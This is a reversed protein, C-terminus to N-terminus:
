QPECAKPVCGHGLKIHTFRVADAEYAIGGECPNEELFLPTDLDVFSFGGAGAAFGASASMALPSEILGGIMLKLGHERALWAMEMSEAIGAKMFKINIVQAARAAAIRKVDPATVASEDAAVPVRGDRQVRAMGDLDGAAVPQEFLIPKIDATRLESLLDLAQDVGLSANADLLLAADPAADRVARVREADDSRGGIKIKVRRFGSRAAAAAERRATAVGGMPITLDTRLVRGASGFYRWFSVRERRTFADLMATELACRASAQGPLADQLERALRRWHRVDKGELLAGGRQLAARAGAATEGNYAPFPAAEGYGVTGDALTLRALVNDAASAAGGAIGFSSRLPLRWDLQEVRSILSAGKM